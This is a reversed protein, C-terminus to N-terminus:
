ESRPQRGEAEDSGLRVPVEIRRGGRVVTLVIRDGPKRKEVHELVAEFTRVPQGDIATVLDAATRDMRQLM